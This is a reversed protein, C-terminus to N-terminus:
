NLFSTKTHLKNISLWKLQNTAFLLLIGLAALRLRIWFQGCISASQRLHLNQSCSPVSSIGIGKPIRETNLGAKWIQSFRRSRRAFAKTESNAAPCCSLCSAAHFEQQFQMIRRQQPMSKVSSSNEMLEGMPFRNERSCVFAVFDRNRIPITAKTGKQELSIRTMGAMRPLIKALNRSDSRNRNLFAAKAAYLLYFPGHNSLNARHTKPPIAIAPRTARQGLRVERKRAYEQGGGM